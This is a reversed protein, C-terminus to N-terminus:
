LSTVQGVFLLYLVPLAIAKGTKKQACRQVWSIAGVVSALMHPRKAMVKGVSAIACSNSACGAL